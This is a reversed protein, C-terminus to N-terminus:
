LTVYLVTNPLRYNELRKAAARLAIIEAHATPDHQSIPQNWGEAICHQEYVVVAGIPVEGQQEAKEALALAYRM